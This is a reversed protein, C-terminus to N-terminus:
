EGSGGPGARWGASLKSRGDAEGPRNPHLGEAGAIVLTFEGRPKHARYHTVLEAPSGRRIEEYLKTLECAATVPRDHFVHELDSLTDLLRHPAEHAVLAFPSDAWPTLLKRRAGGRRPLFGVYVFRDGELGAVSLATALASPGPVPQIPVSRELAAQLLEYGPDALGPMGAESVLAVDGGELAALVAQIRSRKKRDYADTYRMMPTQIDYRALLRRTRPPNESAILHVQRLVRLAKISVDELNGIPTGVVYLTGM